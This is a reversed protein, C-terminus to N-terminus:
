MRGKGTGDYAHRASYARGSGGMGAGIGAVRPASGWRTPCADGSSQAGEAPPGRRHPSTDGPTAAASRAAAASGGSTERRVGRGGLSMGSAGSTERVVVKEGLIMSIEGYAERAGGKKTADSDALTPSAKPASQKPNMVPLCSPGKRTPVGSTQGEERWRPGYLIAARKELRETFSPFLDQMRYFDDKDMSLMDCTSATMADFTHRADLMLAVEGVVSGEFLEAMKVDQDDFIHLVGKILFYVQDAPEGRRIVYEGETVIDHVLCQNLMLVENAEAGNFMPVNKLFAKNLQWMVDQRLFLPLQEIVTHEEMGRKRKWVEDFWASVRLTIPRPVDRTRLFTTIMDRRTSFAAEMQNFSQRTTIFLAFIYMYTLSGVIQIFLSWATQTATQPTWDGQGSMMHSWSWLLSQLYVEGWSELWEVRDIRFWASSTQSTGWCFMVTFCSVVHAWLIIFLLVFFLRILNVDIYNAFIKLQPGLDGPARLVRGIRNLRVWPIKFFIWYFPMNTVLDYKFRGFFYDSAVLHMNVKSHFRSMDVLRFRCYIEIIYTTDSVLGCGIKLYNFGNSVYSRSTPDKNPNSFIGESSSLGSINADLERWDFYGTGEASM